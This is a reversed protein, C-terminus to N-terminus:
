GLWLEREDGSPDVVIHSPSGFNRVVRQDRNYTAWDCHGDTAFRVWTRHVERALARPSDEGTLFRAAETDLTEFVFPLELAHCAGLAGGFARSRWSFQYVHAPNGQTALMEALRISPIRFMFDTMVAGAIVSGDAGPRNERYKAVADEAEDGLAAKALLLVIDDGFLQPMLATFLLGEEATTGVLVAIDRASGAAVSAGPEVPLSSTGFTPAWTLGGLRGSTM